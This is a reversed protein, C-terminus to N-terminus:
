VGFRHEADLASSTAASLIRGDPAATDPWSVFNGQMMLFITRYKNWSMRIGIMPARQSEVDDM